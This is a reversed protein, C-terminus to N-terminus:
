RPRPRPPVPRAPEFRATRPRDVPVPAPRLGERDLLRLLEQELRQYRSLYPADGHVKKIEQQKERLKGVERYLDVLLRAKLHARALLALYCFASAAGAVSLLLFPWFWARFLAEFSADFDM